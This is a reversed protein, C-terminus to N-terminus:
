KKFKFVLYSITLASVSVAACIAIVNASAARADPKTVDHASKGLDPGSAPKGSRQTWLNRWYTLQAAYDEATRVTSMTLKDFFGINSKFKLWAEYLKGYAASEEATLWTKATALMEKTFLTYANGVSAVYNEVESPTWIELLDELETQLPRKM